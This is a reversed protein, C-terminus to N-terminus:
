SGATGGTLPPSGTGPTPHESAPAVFECVSDFRRHEISEGNGAPQVVGSDSAVVRVGQRVGDALGGLVAIM